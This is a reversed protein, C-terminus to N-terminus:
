GTGNEPPEPPNLVSHLTAAVCAHHRVQADSMSDASRLRSLAADRKTELDIAYRQWFESGRLAELYHTV